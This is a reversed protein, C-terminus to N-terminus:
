KTLSCVRQDDNVAEVAELIRMTHGNEDRVALAKVDKPFCSGHWHRSLYVQKWHPDFWYGKKGISM